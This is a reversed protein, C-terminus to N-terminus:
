DAEKRLSYCAGWYAAGAWVIMGSLIWISWQGIGLAARGLIFPQTSPLVLSTYYIIEPYVSIPYLAGGVIMLPLIIATYVTSNLVIDKVMLGLILAFGAWFVGAPIAQLVYLIWGHPAGINGLLAWYMLLLIVAKIWGKLVAEGIFLGALQWRSLATSRLYTLYGSRRKEFIERNAGLFTFVLFGFMVLNPVMWRVTDVNEIEPLIRRLGLLLGLFTILGYVIVPIFERYIKRSSELLEQSLLASLQRM